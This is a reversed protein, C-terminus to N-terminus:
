SPTNCTVRVEEAYAAGIAPFDGEADGGAMETISDQLIQDAAARDPEFAEASCATAGTLVADGVITYATYYSSDYVQVVLPKAMGVPADFKRLHTTTIKADAYSVTWDSPGSLNLAAEGLLAYTDGTIGPEWQMDFGNLATLEAPTLVGDFDEDMGRDSLLALSILDDYTWTIRLAEARGEADFIVEIATDIFVHPHAAAPAAWLTLAAALNIHKMWAGTKAFM